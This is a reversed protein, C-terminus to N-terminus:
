FSGAIRCTPSATQLRQIPSSRATMITICPVEWHPLPCPERSVKRAVCTYILGVKFFEAHIAASAGETRWDM